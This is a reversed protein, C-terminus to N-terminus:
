RAWGPGVATSRTGCRVGSPWPRSPRRGRRDSGSGTRFRPEGSWPRAAAPGVVEDHLRVAEPFLLENEEHLHQTFESELRAILPGVVEDGAALHTVASLLGDIHDHDHELLHIPDVIPGTHFSPWSFADALDRCLPFLTAEESALHPELESRFEDFAPGVAVLRPEDPRKRIEGDIAGAIVPLESRLFAHHVDEIHDILLRLPAAGISACPRARRRRGSLSAIVVEIDVGVRDAAAHLTIGTGLRGDIGFEELVHTWGRHREILDSLQEHRLDASM